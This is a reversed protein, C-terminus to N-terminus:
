DDEEKVGFNLFETFFVWLIFMILWEVPFWLIVEEFPQQRMLGLIIFAGLNVIGCAILFHWFNYKEKIKEKFTM